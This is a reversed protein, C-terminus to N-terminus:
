PLRRKPLAKAVEAVRVFSSQDGTVFEALPGSLDAALHRFGDLPDDSFGPYSGHIGLGDLYDGHSLVTDDWTYSVLGLSHRFHLEIRQSGRVFSGWAAPGGSGKGQGGPEFVFGHPGLVESLILVGQALTQGQAEGVM